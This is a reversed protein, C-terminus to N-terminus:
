GNKLNEGAQVRGALKVILGNLQHVGRAASHRVDDAVAALGLPPLLPSKICQVNTSPSTNQLITKTASIRQLSGSPAGAVQRVADRLVRAGVPQALVLHVPLDLLRELQPLVLGIQLEGPSLPASSMIDM